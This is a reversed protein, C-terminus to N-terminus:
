RPDGAPRRVLGRHVHRGRRDRGTEPDGRDPDRPAGLLDRPCHPGDITGMGALFARVVPQQWVSDLFDTIRWRSSLSLRVQDVRSRVTPDPDAQYQDILAKLREARREERVGYGSAIGSAIGPIGAPAPPLAGSRRVVAAARRGGLVGGHVLWQERERDAFKPVDVEIWPNSADSM